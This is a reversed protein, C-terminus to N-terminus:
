WYYNYRSVTKTPLNWWPMTPKLSPLRRREISKLRSQSLLVVNRQTSCKRFPSIKINEVIICVFIVIKEVKVMEPTINAALPSVYVTREMREPIRYEARASLDFDVECAAEKLTTVITVLTDHQAFIVFILIEVM